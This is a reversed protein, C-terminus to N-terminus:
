IKAEQPSPFTHASTHRNTLVDSSSLNLSQYLHSHMKSYGTAVINWDDMGICGNTAKESWPLLNEM